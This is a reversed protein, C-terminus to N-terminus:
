LQRVIGVIPPYSKTMQWWNQGNKEGNNANIQLRDNCSQRKMNDDYKGTNLTLEKITGANISM